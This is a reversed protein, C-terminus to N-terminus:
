FFHNFILQKKQPLSLLSFDSRIYKIFFADVSARSIKHKERLLYHLIGRRLNDITETHKLPEYFKPPNYNENLFLAMNNMFIEKDQKKYSAEYLEKLEQPTASSRINGDKCCYSKLRNIDKIPVKLRGYPRYGGKTSPCKAGLLTKLRKYLANFQKESTKIIFHYHPKNQGKSNELEHSILWWEINYCPLHILSEIEDFHLPPGDIFFTIYKSEPNYEPM